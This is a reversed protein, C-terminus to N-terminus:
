MFMVSAKMKDSLEANITHSHVKACNIKISTDNNFIEVKGGLLELIQLMYKVDSSMPVNHIIIDEDTLLAAPILKIITNKNAVPKVTGHLPKGGNIILKAM